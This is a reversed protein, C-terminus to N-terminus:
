SVKFVMKLQCIWNQRVSLYDFDASVLISITTSIKVHGKLM